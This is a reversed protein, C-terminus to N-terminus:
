SVIPLDLERMAQVIHLALSMYGDVQKPPDWYYIEAMTDCGPCSGYAVMVVWYRSPYYDNDGIVYLQRGRYGGDDIEHVREPDPVFEANKALKESLLKVVAVVIDRYQEPPNASFRQRLDAQNDLFCDVFIQIM